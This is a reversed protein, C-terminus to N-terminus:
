RKGAEQEHQLLWKKIGLGGAYGTLQGNKGIVRHCPIIIPFPNRNNAMGVARLAKPNGVSRAIDEYSATKGYPIASLAERVLASFPTKAPALPLDFSTRTGAFWQELERVALDLLPDEDRWKEGGSGFEIAHLAGGECM